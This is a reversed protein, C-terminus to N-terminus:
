VDIIDWNKLTLILINSEYTHCPLPILSGEWMHVVFSLQGDQLSSPNLQNYLLVLCFFICLKTCDMTEPPFFFLCTLIYGSVSYCQAWDRLWTQSKTVRHVSQLRGPEETAIYVCTSKSLYSYLQHSKDM